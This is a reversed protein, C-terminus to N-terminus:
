LEPDAQATAQSLDNVTKESVPVNSVVPRSLTKFDESASTISVPLGTEETAIMKKDAMSWIGVFWGGANEIWEGINGKGTTTPAEIIVETATAVVPSTTPESSDEGFLMVMASKIFGDESVGQISDGMNAVSSIIGTASPAEISSNDMYGIVSNINMFFLFGFIIWAVIQISQRRNRSRIM